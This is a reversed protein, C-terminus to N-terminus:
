TIKHAKREHITTSHYSPMKYALTSVTKAIDQQYPKVDIKTKGASGLWDPCPTKVNIYAVSPARRKTISENTNFGCETLIGHVSYSSLRQGKRDWKYDGGYFYGEGGDIAPTSNINGIVEVEGASEVGKDERPAVVVELAYNFEQGTDENKYHGTVVKAQAQTKNIHYNEALNEILEAQREEKNYRLKYKSEAAMKHLDEWLENILQSNDTAEKVTIQWFKKRLCQYERWTEFIEAVPISTDAQNQIYSKFEGRKFNWASEKITM